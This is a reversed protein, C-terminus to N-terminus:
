FNINLNQLFDKSTKNRYYHSNLQNAFVVKNKGYKLRIDDITKNLINKKDYNVDFLSIQSDFCPELHGLSVGIARLPERKWVETFIDMVVKFIQRSDNTKFTLKKQHTTSKRNTDKVSVTVVSGVQKSKRLRTCVKEILGMFIIKAEEVDSLDFPLTTSHGCSKASAREKKVNSTDVGNAYNWIVNGHSHFLQQLFSIDTKALKGVTDIGYKLLKEETSKGVMFLEGVPLNWLKYIENDFLTNTYNPKKLEGAMKAMVKNEGIGVCVTFGLEQEIRTRIEEGAAYPNDLIKQNDSFDIFAEDISYKQVNDSYESLLDMLSQSAQEYIEGRTPLVLLDPYKKKATFITEGTKIGYKKAPYSAALIIGHRDKESGGIVSPVTRIDLNEGHYLRYIAEWSLYASNVDIHFILKRKDFM